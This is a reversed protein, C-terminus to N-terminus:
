LVRSLSRIGDVQIVDTWHLFHDPYNGHCSKKAQIVFSAGKKVPAQPWPWRSHFRYGVVLEVEATLSATQVPSFLM